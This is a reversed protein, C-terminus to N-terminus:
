LEDARAGPLLGREAALRTADHRGNAGLHRYIAMTEQRVTSESFGISRAIQANTQGAAMGELIASQRETLGESQSRSAFAPRDNRGPGPVAVHERGVPRPSDPSPGALCLYFSLLVAVESGDALLASASAGPRVLLQMAGHTEQPLTLPWVAMPALAALAQAGSSPYEEAVDAPTFLIIPEGSIAADSMPTSDWLSLTDDPACAGDPMGYSGIIDLSGDSGFRSICAARTGHVSMIRTVIYQAVRDHTPRTMLFRAFEMLAERTVPSGRRRRHAAPVPVRLQTTRRDHHRRDRAGVDPTVPHAEAQPTGTGRNM